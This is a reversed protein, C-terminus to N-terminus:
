QCYIPLSNASIEDLNAMGCVRIQHYGLNSAGTGAEQSANEGLLGVSLGHVKFVNTMFDVRRAENGVWAILLMKLRLQGFRKCFQLVPERKVDAAFSAV